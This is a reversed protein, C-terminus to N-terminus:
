FNAMIIMNRGTRIIFLAFIILLIIKLSKLKKNYKKIYNVKSKENEKIDTSLDKQM